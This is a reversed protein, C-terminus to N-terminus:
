ATPLAALRLKRAAVVESIAVRPAQDKLYASLLESNTGGNAIVLSTKGTKKSVVDTVGFKIIADEVAEVTPLDSNLWYGAFKYGRIAVTGDANKIEAAVVNGKVEQTM